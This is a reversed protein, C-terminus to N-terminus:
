CVGREGLVEDLADDHFNYLPDLTKHVKGLFGAGSVIASLRLDYALPDNDNKEFETDIEVNIYTGPFTDFFRFSGARTKASKLKVTLTQTNVSSSFLTAELTRAEVEISNCTDDQTSNKFAGKELLSKPLQFGSSYDPLHVIFDKGNENWCCHKGGGRISPVKLNANGYRVFLQFLTPIKFM